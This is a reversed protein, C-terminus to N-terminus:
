PTRGLFLWRGESAVSSTSTGCTSWATEGQELRVWDQGPPKTQFRPLSPAPHRLDWYVRNIGPQTPGTLERIVGAMPELDLSGRQGAVRGAAHFVNGYAEKVKDM